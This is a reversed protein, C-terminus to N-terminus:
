GRPSEAEDPWRYVGAIEIAIQLTSFRFLGPGIMPLMPDARKPYAL